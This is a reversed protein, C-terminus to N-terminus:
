RDFKSQSQTGACPSCEQKAPPPFQVKCKAGQSQTNKLLSRTARRVCPSPPCCAPFSGCPLKCYTQRNTDWNVCPKPSYNKWTGGKNRPGTPCFVRIHPAPLPSWVDSEGGANHILERHVSVASIIKSRMQRRAKRWSKADATAKLGAERTEQKM